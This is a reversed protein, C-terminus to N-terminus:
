DGVGGLDKLRDLRDSENRVMWDDKSLIEYARAFPEKAEVTRGLQHLCEGVEEFVYGSPETATEGDQILKQQEDLAESVRGMSRWCRAVTWRAIRWEREQGQVKRFELSKEFLVLANAYNGSDHYTWGTNNYLPGLWRRAEPDDTSEALAIAKHSWELAQEPPEIIGMMHAADLAWRDEGHVKALEWAQLFFPRAKKRKIEVDPANPRPIGNHARGRALLYRVRAVSMGDELMGEADDLTKHSEDVKEQLGQTRAIQTLLQVLYSINGSSRADGLVAVLKQETGAPDEYNWLKDFDPLTEANGAVGEQM